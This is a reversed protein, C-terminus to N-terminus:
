QLTFKTDGEKGEKNSWHTLKMIPHCWLQYRCWCAKRKIAWEIYKLEGGANALKTHKLVTFKKSWKPQVNSIIGFVEQETKYCITPCRPAYLTSLSQVWWLNWIQHHYSLKRMRHYQRTYPERPLHLYESTIWLTKQGNHLKAQSDNQPVYAARM